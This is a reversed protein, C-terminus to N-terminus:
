FASSIMVLLLFLLKTLTDDLYLKESKFSAYSFLELFRCVFDNQIDFLFM